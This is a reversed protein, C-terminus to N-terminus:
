RCFWFFGFVDYFGGKAYLRALATPTLKIRTREAGDRQVYLQRLMERVRTNGPAVEFARELFWIAQQTEGLDKALLALNIWADADELDASLVCQFFHNAHSFDGKELCAHALLKYVSLYRPHHALVHRSHAIAEDIHGNEIQEAIRRRYEALSVQLM